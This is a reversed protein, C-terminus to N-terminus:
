QVCQFAGPEEGLGDVLPPDINTEGVRQIGLGKPCGHRRSAGSGDEPLQRFGQLNGPGPSSVVEEPDRRPAQVGSSRNVSAGQERRCTLRESQAIEWQGVAQGLRGALPSCTGLRVEYPGVRQHPLRSEALRIREELLSLRLRGAVRFAGSRRRCPGV